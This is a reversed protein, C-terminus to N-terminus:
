SASATEAPRELALCFDGLEAEMDEYSQETTATSPAGAAALRLRAPRLARDVIEGWARRANQYILLWDHFRHARDGAVVRRRRDGERHGM